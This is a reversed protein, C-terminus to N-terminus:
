ERGTLVNRAATCWGQQICVDLQSLSGAPWDTRQYFIDLALLLQRDSLWRPNTRLHPGHHTGYWFHCQRYQTKGPFAEVIISQATTLLAGGGIGQIFRWFVLIWLSNALGCFLSAVTFILISITFYRKRGFLDGLMGSLPIMIVNSIAYSTVTWAIESTTAGISGSIERLSVNVISTDILQLLAASIATFVLIAREAGVPYKKEETNM